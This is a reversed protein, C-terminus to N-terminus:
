ESLGAAERADELRSFSVMRVIRGDRLWYVLGVREDVELGTARSVATIRLVAVVADGADILDELERDYRDWTEDMDALYNRIEDLGKYTRGDMEGFRSVFEINPHAFERISRETEGAQFMSFSRRVLDVNEESM